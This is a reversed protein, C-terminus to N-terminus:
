VGDSFSDIFLRDFEEKCWVEYKFGKEINDFAKSRISEAYKRIGVTNVLQIHKEFDECSIVHYPWKEVLSLDMENEKLKEVVYRLLIDSIEDNYSINWEELTVLLPTFGRSSSYVIHPYLGNSFDIYSKYLQIIADAIKKLEKELGISIDLNFKSPIPLRKTKCEIFLVANKSELIWDVTDKQPSDYAVEPLINYDKENCCHRLVTGIYKQYAMGFARDFGQIKKDVWYYAGKIIQTFLLQPMPCVMASDSKKIIPKAWLPSYGYFLNENMQQCEKIEQKAEDVSISYNQIFTQIIDNTVVAHKIPIPLEIEFKGSFLFSFYITIIFLSRIPIKLAEEIYPKLASDSYISYYRYLEFVLNKNQWKLQDHSMRFLELLLNDRISILGIDIMKDKLQMRMYGLLKAQNKLKKLSNETKVIGCHLIFEKLLFDLEHEPIGYLRRVAINSTSKFNPLREIDSPLPMNFGLSIAYGWLVYLSDFLEYKRIQNRFPKYLGFVVENQKVM